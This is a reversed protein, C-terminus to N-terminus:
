DVVRTDKGGGNQSSNVVLAGAELAVRTLGGPLVAIDDGCFAFARLDVHRPELRGDVVTPHRSLPLLRQAIYREPHEDLEDALRELDATKAHAGIVVGSGGYGARPKIVLERLEDVSLRGDVPRSPVSRVLPEEGLYFRVCDEVLGHVLKDDALGSGFGNVLGVRGELWPVLLAKAVDTPEGREDRLRDVDTRRYVVDVPRTSGDPQRVALREGDDLIDALTGLAADIRRAVQEHEYTASNEPGDTLLLISPEDCGAPAAARLAGDLLSWVEPEIPRCPALSPAGEEALVRRAAVAYAFGSPTRVNDELVLLEGDPARVIDFGIVAAPWRQTPLRGHLEPEYGEADDITADSVVGARAIAREGYADRLLADLARGRQALGAALDDWEGGDILRPVPDVVFAEEGFTVGDRELRRAIGRRLEDLDRGEFAGPLEAYGPRPAGADDRDEDWARAPGDPGM